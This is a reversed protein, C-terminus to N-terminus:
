PSDASERSEWCNGTRFEPIQQFTHQLEFARQAVIESLCELADFSRSKVKGEISCAVLVGRHRGDDSILTIAASSVPRMALLAKRDAPDDTLEEVFGPTFGSRLRVRRYSVNQSHYAHGTPRARANPGTCPAETMSCSAVRGGACSRRPRQKRSSQSNAIDLSERLLGRPSRANTM